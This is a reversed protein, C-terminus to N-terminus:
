RAVRQVTGVLSLSRAQSFVVGATYRGKASFDGSLTGLNGQVGLLSFLTKFVSCWKEFHAMKGQWSCMVLGFTMTSTISTEHSLTKEKIPKESEATGVWIM